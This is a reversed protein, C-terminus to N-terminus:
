LALISLTASFRELRCSTGVQWPEGMSGDPLCVPERAAIILNWGSALLWLICLAVIARIAIYCSNRLYPATQDQSWSHQRSSIFSHFAIYCISVISAVLTLIEAPLITLDVYGAGFLGISILLALISTSLLVVLSTTIAILTWQRRPMAKVVAIRRSTLDRKSRLKESLTLKSPRESGSNDHSPIEIGSDAAGGESSAPSRFSFGLDLPLHLREALTQSAVQEDDQATGPAPAATTDVDVSPADDESKPTNAPWKLNWDINRASHLWQAALNPKSTDLSSLHPVNGSTETSTVDAADKDNTTRKSQSRIDLESLRERVGAIDKMIRGGRRFGAAREEGTEEATFTRAAGTDAAPQEHHQEVRTSISLHALSPLLM